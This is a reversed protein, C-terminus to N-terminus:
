MSKFQHKVNNNYVRIQLSWTLMFYNKLLVNLKWYLFDLRPPPTIKNFIPIIEFVFQTPLVKFCGIKRGTLSTSTQFQNWKFCLRFLKVIESLYWNFSYMNNTEKIISQYVVFTNCLRYVNLM